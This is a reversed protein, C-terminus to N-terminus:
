SLTSKYSVYNKVRSQNDEIINLVTTQTKLQM